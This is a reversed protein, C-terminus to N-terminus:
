NASLKRMIRKKLSRFFQKQFLNKKLNKALKSKSVLKEELNSIEQEHKKESMRQSAKLIKIKANAEGLKAELEENAKQLAMNVSDDGITSEQLTLDEVYRNFLTTSGITGDEQLTDDEQFTDDDLMSVEEIMTSDNFELKRAM